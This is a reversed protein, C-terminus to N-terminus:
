GRGSEGPGHGPSGGPDVGPDSSTWPSSAGDVEGHPSVSPDAGPAVRRSGPAGPEGAGPGGAVGRGGGADASGGVRRASGVASGSASRALAATVLGGVLPPVALLLVDSVYVPKDVLLVLATVVAVVVLVGSLPLSWRWPRQSRALLGTGTALALLATVVHLVGLGRDEPQEGLSLLFLGLVGVVLGTALWALSLPWRSSSRRAVAITTM